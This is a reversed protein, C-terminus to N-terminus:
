PTLQDLPLRYEVTPHLRLRSRRVTPCILAAHVAWASRMAERFRDRRASVHARRAVAAIPSTVGPLAAFAEGVAAVLATGAAAAHRSGVRRVQHTAVALRQVTAYVQLVDRRLAHQSVLEAGLGFTLMAWSAGRVGGSAQPLPNLGEVLVCAGAALLVQQQSSSSVGGLMALYEAANLAESAADMLERMAELEATVAAHGTATVDGSLEGAERLLAVCSRVVEIVVFM